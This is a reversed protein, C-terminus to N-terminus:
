MVILDVICDATSTLTLTQSNFPQSRYITAPANIDSVIWGQMKRALLHNVVNVGTSLIVGKLINSSSLPKAIIPNLISAWKNQMLQFERDDTQIQPLQM